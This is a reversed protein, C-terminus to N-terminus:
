TRMEWSADPGPATRTDARRRAASMMQRARSLTDPALIALLAAYCALGGLGEAALLALATVTEYSAPDILRDAALLAGAMVMAALAPPWLQSLLSRITLGIIRAVRTLAYAAGATVGISLGIAVGIMDFPLLAVMAVSGVGFSIAHVWVLVGPRGAAKFGESSISVVSAAVAYGSLAMAAYGADRWVDGFVVVALPPGLPVLILALPMAVTALWRAAEQFASAFRRRDHSIRAFAPYIVYSAAAVVLALPTSAIRYAYRYQGLQAQGVFRGILAVPIESGVREVITSAIVHRAFGILERWMAVSALRFRPRWRVLLWSLTVDTVASAYFGVVLGWAGLGESTLVVAAIGFAIVQVPEVVMRRVFSFRRQMLAEPVVQLSRVLLLGSLAAALTGIRGSDFFAGILPSAGLALLSFLLGGLATAVVATSAAEELRDRRHVLAALMGSETFLLGINVVLGAAAFEGFDAPTAIRALAVYFGLTLVQTLVYGAGALGAGRLVTGTLPGPTEQPQDGPPEPPEQGPGKM